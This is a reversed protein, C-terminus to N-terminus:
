RRRRGHRQKEPRLRRQPSKNEPARGVLDYAPALDLRGATAHVEVIVVRLRQALRVLSGSYHGVLCQNQADFRWDDPGLAEQPILGEVGYDPLRVQVGFSSLNDVVGDFAEGVRQRLLHLIFLTKLELEATDARRETDSLHQGTRTLEDFSHRCRAQDLNQALYDDLARHVLLDAYRRIPSTFHCYKAAALAYHGVNAPLYEAKELSRLVLIHIPLAQKADQTEAILRQFDWRSPQRPFTVGLLRLTRSLHRLATAKPQGHVRRMFPVCYRDLLTAVAVNAEIMFMEILRHAGSSDKPKVGVMAGSDDRLLEIENMELQLMGAQRRRTEILRALQDMRRLLTVIARPHTHPKGKLIDTVEQYTLRAQSRIVTNAFRTSRVEGDKTFTLYVSKAFRLQDPQM